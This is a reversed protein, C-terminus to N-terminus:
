GHGEGVVGHDAADVADVVLGWVHVLGGVDDVEEEQDSRPSTPNTVVVIEFFREHKGAELLDELFRAEQLHIEILMVGELKAQLLQLSEGVIGLGLPVFGVNFSDYVVKGAAQLLVEIVLDGSQEGHLRTITSGQQFNVSFAFRNSPFLLFYTFDDCKNM